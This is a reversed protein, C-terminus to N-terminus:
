MFVVEPSGSPNSEIMGYVNFAQKGQVNILETTLGLNQRAKKIGFQNLCVKKPNVSFDDTRKSSGKDTM